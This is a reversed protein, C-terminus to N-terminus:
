NIIFGQFHGNFDAGGSMFTPIDKYPKAELTIIDDITLTLPEYFIFDINPNSGGLRKHRVVSGNVTLRVNASVTGSVEAYVISTNSSVVTYTLIDTYSVATTISTTNFLFLQNEHPSSATNGIVDVKIVDNALIQYTSEFELQDANGNKVIICTYQFTGELGILEYYTNRNEYQWKVRGSNILSKFRYWNIKNM